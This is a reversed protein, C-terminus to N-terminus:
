FSIKLKFPEQFVHIWSFFIVFEFLSGFYKM